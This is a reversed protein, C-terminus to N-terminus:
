EVISVHSFTLRYKNAKTEVTGNELTGAEASFTETGGAPISGKLKFPMSAVRAGKDDLWTVDGSIDQVALTARNLLTLGVIQRYTNLIGKDFAKVDKAELYAGPNALLDKKAKERADEVIKAAAAQVAAQNDEDHKQLDCANVTVGLMTGVAIARFTIM